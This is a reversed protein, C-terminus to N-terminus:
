PFGTNWQQSLMWVPYAHFRFIFEMCIIPDLRGRLSFKSVKQYPFMRTVHLNKSMLKGNMYRGINNSGSLRRKVSLLIIFPRYHRM